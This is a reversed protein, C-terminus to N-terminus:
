ALKINVALISDDNCVMLILVGVVRVRMGLLSVGELLGM